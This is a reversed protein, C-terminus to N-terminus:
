GITLSSSTLHHTLVIEAEDSGGALLEDVSLTTSRLITQFTITEVGEARLERLTSLSAHLSATFRGARITLVSNGRISTYSIRQGDKDTVILGPLTSAPAEPTDERDSTEEPIVPEEPEPISVQGIVNGDADLAIIDAGPALKDKFDDPTLETDAQLLASGDGQTGKGAKATLKLSGSLDISDRGYIGNGGSFSGSGGTATVASGSITLSGISYIGSGGSGDSGTGNGGTVTVTAPFATAM